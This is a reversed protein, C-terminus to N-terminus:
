HIFCSKIRRCGWLWTLWQLVAGIVTLALLVPPMWMHWCFWAIGWLAATCVLISAFAYGLAVPWYRGPARCLARGAYRGLVWAQVLVIGFFLLLHPEAQEALFWSVDNVSPSFVAVSSLFIFECVLMALVQMRLMTRGGISVAMADDNMFLPQM